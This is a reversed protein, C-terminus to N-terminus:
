ATRGQIRPVALLGFILTLLALLPMWRNIPIEQLGYPGRDIVEIPVDAASQGAYNPDASVVSSLRVDVIQDPNARTNDSTLLRVSLPDNWQGPQITASLPVLEFLLDGTQGPPRLTAQLIVTVEATPQTTLTLALTTSQSELIRTPGTANLSVGASDNDLNVVSLSTPPLAAFDPDSDASVAIQVLVTQDGDDIFEDVGSLIIAQPATANNQDFVLQQPLVSVEGPNGSTILIRVPTSSVPPRNLAIEIRGGEGAESVVLDLANIQLEAPAVFDDNLNVVPMDRPDIGQYRNDASVAPALGIEASIDGDLDPDDVGTVIVTQPTDWSALPFVIESRDLAFETSDPNSLAIRVEASPETSLSVQFSASGGAETTQIPGAPSVDIAAPVDNDRNVAPVDLPDLGQYRPDASVIPALGIVGVIDGDIDLDNVGTVTLRKPTAWDAPTFRLESVDFAWESTDPNSLAIVLDATPATSVRVEVFASTGAESTEISGLPTVLVQVVEDDLNTVLVNPPDIGAYRTDASVAPDLVISGVINGDVETDDVGTVIVTRPAFDQPTFEIETVALAFESADGSGLAITVPATPAETLSVVFSDSSGGENVVLGSTPNVLIQPGDDDLNTLSVDAPDLGNFRLDASQAPGLVLVATQDGDVQADDIPTVLVTRGTQWNSADLRVDLDLIQWETSDVPGIPVVVEASPPANLRVTFSGATGNEATVVSLPDVTIGAGDNDTNRAIVDPPDIGAFRQDASQAPLLQITGLQLGDLEVDDLGTVLVTQVTQWDASTFSLSSRDVSWETADSSVVPITVPDTPAANISVTFSASTGNESTEVLLPSVTIAVTDDDLNTVSVDAPDIGNYAPDGSQAPGIVISGAIDGDVLADDVGAIGVLRPIDWNGPTFTLSPSALAFETADSVSMPITVDATPAATLRVSFQASQGAESTVLGTVPTVLIDPPPLGELVFPESDLVRWNSGNSIELVCAHDGPSFGITPVSDNAVFDAGPVLDAIFTQQLLVAGTDLNVVGRRLNMGLQPATGRNRATYLCNQQQGLTLTPIAVDVFGQILASSDALREFSSNDTAYEFNTLRSRLRGTATYSGAAGSGDLGLTSEVFGAVFLDDYPFSRQLSYGGPGTVTIIVEPLRIVETSSLNTARFSLTVVEGPTYTARDFGLALGGAPGSIDGAIAFSATATDIQVGQANLLTGALVYSGALVGNSPWNLTRLLAGGAAVSAFDVDALTATTQGQSNRISWRVRYGASLAGLNAVTARLEATEGPSYSLKDTSLQLDGLGNTAAFSISRQNNIERCERARNSPDVVAFLEGTGTLPITGLNVIQFRAPRLTDLRVQKQLVGGAAPDGRFISIFPPEHADVPGANGVRVQVVPDLGPGQDILRLDGVSFDPMGLPDPLPSRQTRYTNHTLWSPTELLPIVSNEAVDDIHFAHSGWVSGADAFAGNRAKFVRIGPTVGAILDDDFGTLIIEAQKDGDIDAVVPYEFVTRSTHRTKFLEEGSLADLVRFDQEDVHLIEYRGDNQFDFVAPSTVGSGDRIAVTRKVTGDSEFITLRGKNEDGPGPGRSSVLIEPLGDADIDIIVPAGMQQNDPSFKPGWITEGTHELLYMRSGVVLVIEAQDDLDFNGVATYMADTYVTGFKDLNYGPDIDGRHWITRGEFDYLSRGAIVEMRGDLDVDAAISAINSAIMLPRTAPLGGDGGADFEGEWLQEGTLGRFAERGLVIEAENDGELNVIIPQDYVYGTPPILPIPVGPGNLPTRWKLTGDNEFAILEQRHNRVVVIEAVGDNDIDGTAVSSFPSFRIDTRAWLQHGDDGSIAVLATVNPAETARYGAVFVLDPTDYQNIVGDDNDDSLQTVSPVQNISNILQNSALGNWRWAEYITGPNIPTQEIRCGLLSTAVNNNELQEPVENEADVWFAVPADRFTLQATVAIDVSVSNAIPLDRDVRVRGIEPEVGVDFVGNANADVFAILTFDQTTASTGRNAVEVTFHDTLAFTDPETTSLTSDVIVLDPFYYDITTPKLGVSGINRQELPLLPVLVTAPVFADATISLQVTPGTLNQIVFLGESDTQITKQGSADVAVVLAREIPQRNAQNVIKGTIKARNAGNPTTGTPYLRPSFNLVQNDVLPVQITVPDYDVLSATITAMASAAVSLEYAGGANTQTTAAPVGATAAVNVGALPQGTNADVILGQIRAGTGAPNPSLSMSFEIVTRPTATLRVARSSYGTAAASIEVTGVPVQLFQYRGDADSAVQTPPNSLAMLAGAIPLGTESDTVLGHIVAYDGTPSSGQTMRLTGLDLTRGNVLTFQFEISRMGTFSLVASYNGGPLTTSQLMGTSNTVLTAASAGTLALQAGAIPLETDASIVRGTISSLTPSVDPQQYRWLARLALATVYADNQFSGNALQQTALATAVPTLGARDARLALLADLALGTEFVEGFSQDLKRASEIFSKCRNIPLTLDFRNQYLAFAQAVHSSAFVSPLNGAASLHGGNSQQASILYGIARAAPTGGGQGARELALLTWATTLPESQYGAKAPFGGDTLQQALLANLQATASQGQDLRIRALRALSTLTGDSQDRVVGALQPFESSRSLLAATIWTEANTDSASALDTGQHVGTASERSKLWQVGSDVDAYAPM